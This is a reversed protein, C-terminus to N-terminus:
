KLVSLEVMQYKIRAKIYTVAIKIRSDTRETVKWAIDKYDKAMLFYKGM